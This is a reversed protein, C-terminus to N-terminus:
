NNKIAAYALAIFAVVWPTIRFLLDWGKLKFSEIATETTTLRDGFAKVVVMDREIDSLKSVTDDIPCEEVIKELAKAKEELMKVIDDYSKTQGKFLTILKERVEVRSDRLTRLDSHIRGIEAPVSALGQLSILVPEYLNFKDELRGIRLTNDEVM